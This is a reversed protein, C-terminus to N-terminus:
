EVTIVLNDKESVAGLKKFFDMYENMQPKKKIIIKYSTKGKNPGSKISQTTTSIDVVYKVHSRIKNIIYEICYM